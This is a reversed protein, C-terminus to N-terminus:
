CIVEVFEGLIKKNLKKAKLSKIFASKIQTKTADEKVEFDVEQSIFQASLGFKKTYGNSSLSVCKDKKWQKIAKDFEDTGYGTSQRIFHSVDRELIRIGIFNVTPNEDKVCTLLTETFKNWDGPVQYVKGTKRSRLYSNLTLRATGIYSEGPQDWKRNFEKHFPIHGSEGDTLIVCHVKQLNEQKKVLPIIKNLAIVSENLPTGSLGLKPHVSYTVYKRFQYAIRWINKMQTELEKSTVKSTFFEM